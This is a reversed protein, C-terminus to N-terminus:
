FLCIRKIPLCIPLYTTRPPHTDRKGRWQERESLVRAAGFTRSQQRDPWKKAGWETFTVKDSFTRIEYTRFNKERKRERKKRKEKKEGTKNTVEV